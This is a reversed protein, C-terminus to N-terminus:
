EEEYQIYVDGDSGGSPEATGGTIQSQKKNLEDIIANIAEREENVEKAGYVSGTQSYDTVDVFSYTDDGNDIMQFKRRGSSDSLIDDKFDTSLKTIAM